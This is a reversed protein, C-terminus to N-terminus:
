RSWCAFRLGVWGRFREPQRRRQVLKGPVERFILEPGLTSIENTNHYCEEDAGRFVLEVRMQSFARSKGPCM